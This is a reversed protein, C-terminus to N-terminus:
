FVSKFILSLRVHIWKLNRFENKKKCDDVTDYETWILVCKAVKWIDTERLDNSNNIIICDITLTKNM